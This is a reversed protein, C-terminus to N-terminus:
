LGKTSIKEKAGHKLNPYSGGPSCYHKQNYITRYAYFFVVSSDLDIFSKRKLIMDNFIIAYSFLLDLQLYLSSYFRPCSMFFTFISLYVNLSM